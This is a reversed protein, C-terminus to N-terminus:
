EMHRVFQKADSEIKPPRHSTEVSHLQGQLSRRFAQFMTSIWVQPKALFLVMPPALHAQSVRHKEIMSLFLEPEFKPLTVVKAGTYLSAFLVIVLGYLHFFPLIGILCAGDQRFDSFIKPHDFQIVKAVMINNHHTM